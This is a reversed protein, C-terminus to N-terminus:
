AMRALRLKDTILSMLQDAMEEGTGVFNNGTVTIQVPQASGGDAARAEAATLVREDQHLLAAYGDYPVRRLGAAHGIANRPIGNAYGYGNNIMTSTASDTAEGSGFWGTAQGKSREQGTYYSQLAGTLNETATINDRIAAIQDRSLDQEELVLDNNDYITQALAQAEEYVDEMKVAASRSGTGEYDERAAQYQEALEQMRDLEAQSYLGSGPMAGELVATLTERTIQGSLNEFFAQNEGAIRNIASVADGLAGEYADAEAQLGAKREENYGEGGAAQINSMIDELNDTMADYTSMLDESLGGYTRDIYDLIAQAATGGSIDGKTVMGAISSKDVGLAESLAAYVDVGRESFYNLYEQTAKGTTRMRSLGSIMMSVDSSSLNLGASADSLTQLVGFVEEPDYTNLLLKSYGTIEDYAYNTGAAMTKVRELYADAAEDGGLRKAFARQTQERGGAIASGSEVMSGTNGTVTDYLGNYYDKFADDKAEFIKTGGSILGSVAGVGAGVLAGPLGFVSGAAAGSIANSLTDSLMSAAPTGLASTAAFEAAGGLSDSLIKGVQGSILGMALKSSDLGGSGGGSASKRLTERYENVSKQNKRIQDDVEALARKLEDQEAIAKDLRDKSADDGLKRYEKRLDSVSKGSTELASKLEKQRAILPKNASELAKLHQSLQQTEKDLAKTKDGILSIVKSAGDQLAFYLSISEKPVNM